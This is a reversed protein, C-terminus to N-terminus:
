LVKKAYDQNITIEDVDVNLHAGVHRVDEGNAVDRALGHQRVLRHVLPMHRGFHDGALQLAVFLQGGAGEFGAHDRADGVGVGFDGPHAQGLVLGLGLADFDFLAKEGPGGRAAGGGVAAGLAEGLEQEVVARFGMTVALDQAAADDAGVRAVQDAFDSQGDLHAGVRHVDALRNVRVGRQALAYAHRCFHRM